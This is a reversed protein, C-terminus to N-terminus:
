KDFTRMFHDWSSVPRFAVHKYKPSISRNWPASFLFKTEAPSMALNHMADDLIIDGHVLDKRSTPIYNAGPVSPFHRLLWARRAAVGEPTVSTLFIVDHGREVLHRVGDAAGPLVPMTGFFEPDKFFDRILAGHEHKDLNGQIFGDFPITIGHLRHLWDIAQEVCGGCVGDVDLLITKKMKAM